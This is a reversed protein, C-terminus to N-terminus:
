LNTEIRSHSTKIEFIVEPQFAGFGKAMQVKVPLM